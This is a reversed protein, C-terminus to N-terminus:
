FCSLIIPCGVSFSGAIKCQQTEIYGEDRRKWWNLRTIGRNKESDTMNLAVMATTHDIKRRDDTFNKRRLLGKEYSKADAQTATVLLCHYEQSMRRMRKWNHNIQAREEQIGRPPALLDAYDIIIIDPVWGGSIWDQLISEIGEMNISSNPHCSLRFLDKKRQIKEWADLSKKPTIASLMRDETIITDDTDVGEEDHVLSTPISCIRDYRPRRLARQGLRRIVQNKSMDGIEFFAVRKRQRAGRYGLDLLWWSKGSGSAGVFSVFCDRGFEGWFFKGVGKPYKVLQELASNDLAEKWEELDQGPKFVSGVGLEVKRFEAIRDQAEEVENDDIESEAAMLTQKLRVKNFLRGAMDLIYEVSQSEEKDYEESLFDLLKGVSEVTEERVRGGDAWNEFSTEINERIAIGYKQHYKIAWKAILNETRSAFLGVNEWKSGIRACVTADTIMASLIRRSDSGDYKKHKM